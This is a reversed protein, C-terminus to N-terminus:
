SMGPLSTLPQVSNGNFKERESGSSQRSIASDVSQSYNRHVYAAASNAVQARLQALVAELLNRLLTQEMETLLGAVFRSTAALEPRSTKRGGRNRGRQWADVEQKFAYVSGAREHVHRYVPMAEQAEWRQVTRVNRNFYRAIDKWSDLRDGRRDQDTDTTAGRTVAMNTNQKRMIAASMRLEREAM